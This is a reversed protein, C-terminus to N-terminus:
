RGERLARQLVDEGGLEHDLLELLLLEDYVDGLVHQNRLVLDEVRLLLFRQELPVPDLLGLQRADLQVVWDRPVVPQLSPFDHADYPRGLCRPAIYGIAQTNLFFRPM